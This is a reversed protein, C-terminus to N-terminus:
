NLGEIDACIGCLHRGDYEKIDEALALCESYGDCPMFPAVTFSAGTPEDHSYRIATLQNGDLTLRLEFQSDLTLTRLIAKTLVEYVYGRAIAYGSSRTWGLRTGSILAADPKANRNYWEELLIHADELMWDGCGTCSDAELYIGAEDDCYNCQCETTLTATILEKTQM